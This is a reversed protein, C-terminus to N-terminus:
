WSWRKRVIRLQLYVVILLVPFLFLAIAAGRGLFGATLGTQYALTALLHTSDMPGGKTLAYVIAFDSITMITSFLVVMAFVPAILPMTIRTFQTWAGAGDVKAAEYLEQPITKLGALINLAFFPLGRWVNVTIVALRAYSPFSLWAINRDIIGVSRLVWNLSSYQPDFIWRWAITTFAIPTVWPLLVIARIPRSFVTIRHLLLALVLGLSAKLAVAISFYLATNYLTTRFSRMQLIRVFNELGVFTGPNAVTANTLGLYCALLLPYLVFSATYLVVSAVLTYATREERSLRRLM